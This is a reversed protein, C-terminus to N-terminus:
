LSADRAADGRMKESAALRVCIAVAEAAAAIEPLEPFSPAIRITRDHPDKGYPHTAGAPTLEVGAAKALEVVRRACGDLVDLTIFYGGKPETWTAFGTNGLQERFVELVKAFKPAMIARHREMLALVGATDRLVRVHRLQNVKDGGITRKEMRKLYWAVNNKSSAFLSIGAGAFTIKSTSGFIFARDPNGHRECAAIINALEVREETLHHVAYANDWFLRFDRAATSMAALREVTEKSYVTGTPNSYKPICWMGKISSDKAVLAEVVNMDPGHETLPVNIMEIGYQQCISFHRDYGPVPCLFSVKPEKVWPRESDSTGNLLAYLVADHMLGLSANDGIVVREATVDFLPALLARLEAIGQVVGYNRCDTKDAAVFDDAGPLSLLAASLDLQQASPKGRTLNLKLGRKRFADYREQADRHLQVLDATALPSAAFQTSSNMDPVNANHVDGAALGRVSACAVLKNFFDTTSKKLLRKGQRVFAGPTIKAASGFDLVQLHM